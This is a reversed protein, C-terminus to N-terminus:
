VFADKKFHLLLVYMFFLHPNQHMSKLSIEAYYIKEEFSNYIGFLKDELKSGLQCICM